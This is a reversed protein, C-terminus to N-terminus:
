ELDQPSLGLQKLIARLTGPPLERKINPVITRRPGFYVTGHSGKGRKHDFYMALQRRDALLKLKRLFEAGTM